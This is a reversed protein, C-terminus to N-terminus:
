LLAAELAFVKPLGFSLYEKSNSDVKSSTNEPSNLLLCFGRM